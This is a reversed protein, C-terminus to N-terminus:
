STARGIPPTRVQQSLGLAEMTDKFTLNEANTIDNIHMNFDGM